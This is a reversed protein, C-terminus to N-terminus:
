QNAKNERKIPKISLSKLEKNENIIAEIAEANSLRTGEKVQNIVDQVTPSLMMNYNRYGQDILSQRWKKARERNRERYQKGTLLPM